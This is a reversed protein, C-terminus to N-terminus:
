ENKISFLLRLSECFGTLDVVESSDDSSDDSSSYIKFNSMPDDERSM